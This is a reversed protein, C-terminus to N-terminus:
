QDVQTPHPLTHTECGNSRSLDEYAVSQPRNRRGRGKPSHTPRVDTARPFTRTHWVSCDTTGVGEGEFILCTRTSTHVHTASFFFAFLSDDCSQDNVNM